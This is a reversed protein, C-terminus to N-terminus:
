NVLEWKQTKANYKKTVKTRPDQRVEGHKFQPASPPPPPPAPTNDGTAETGIKDVAGSYPAADEAKGYAANVTKRRYSMVEENIAAETIPNFREFANEVLSRTDEIRAKAAKRESETVATKGVDKWRAQYNKETQLEAAVSAQYPQKYAATLQSVRNILNAKKTTTVESSSPDDNTNFAEIDTELKSIAQYEASDEAFAGKMSGLADMNLPERLTHYAARNAKNEKAIDLEMKIADNVVNPYKTALPSNKMVKQNDPNTLDVSSLATTLNQIETKEQQNEEQVQLSFAKAQQDQAATVAKNSMGMVKEQDLGSQYAEADAASQLHRLTQSRAEEDM